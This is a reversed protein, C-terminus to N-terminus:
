TLHLWESGAARLPSISSDCRNAPRYLIRKGDPSWDYILGCSDCLKRTESNSWSVLHIVKEDELVGRPNIAVTSGDPSIRARPLTEVRTLIRDLGSALERAHIEFGELGRRVYVLREGNASLSPTHRDSHDGSLRRAGRPAPKGQNHDIPIEWLSSRQVGNTFVVM